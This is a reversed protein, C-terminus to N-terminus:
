FRKKIAKMITTWARDKSAWEAVPVLRATNPDTPTAQISSWESESWHDNERILIPVVICEGADYRAKAVIM